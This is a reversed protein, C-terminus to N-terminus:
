HIEPIQGLLAYKEYRRQLDEETYIRKDAVCILIAIIYPVAFGLVAALAVNSLLSPAIKKGYPIGEIGSIAELYFVDNTENRVIENMCEKLATALRAADLATYGKVTFRINMKYKANPDVENHEVKILNSVLDARSPDLLENYDLTLDFDTRKSDEIYKIMLSAMKESELARLASTLYADGVAIAFSLDSLPDQDLLPDKEEGDDLEAKNLEANYQLRAEFTTAYVKQVFYSTVFYAGVGALIAVILMFLFCKKFVGWLDAVTITM